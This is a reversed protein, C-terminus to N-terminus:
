DNDYAGSEIEEAIDYVTPMGFDSLQDVDYEKELINMTLAIIREMAERDM